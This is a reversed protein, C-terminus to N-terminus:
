CLGFQGTNSASCTAFPQLRGGYAANKRESSMDPALCIVHPVFVEPLNRQSGNTDALLLLLLLLLLPLCAAVVDQQKRQKIMSVM